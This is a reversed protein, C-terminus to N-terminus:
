EWHIAFQTVTDGRTISKKFDMVVNKAGSIELAKEIWGAIRYEIVIDTKTMDSIEVLVSNETKELVEMKCPQYYSAFVRSARQIIFAPSSAKVFLKYIGTLGAEASFRGAQWAGKKYDGEFFLDVTKRTPLIGGEDIPYWKSSDIAGTYIDKSSGPLNDLWENYRDPYNTKVYDRIATVATGKIEM